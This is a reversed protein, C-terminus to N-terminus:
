SLKQYAQWWRDPIDDTCAAQYDLESCPIIFHRQYKQDINEAKKVEIWWRNTKKSKFFVLKEIQKTIQVEYRVFHEESKAPDENMRQYFGDIFYWIMQALLHSTQGANDTSPNLEFFGICSMTESSGAYRAIQCADEGYFGNPTANANGPADSQRIASIDFSLFDANRLLPECLFIKNKFYGLRYIDFYLNKMLSIASQDTFYTQYGINTYNFLFNPKNLLIRNLWADSKLPSETVGLDFNNDVSAINIIKGMEKFAMYIPYTLEQSGGVIIPVINKNFLESVVSQLAFYTDEPTYGKKINGIDAVKINYHSLFLKYFYARFSNPAEACGFNGISNRDEEVGLIAIDINELNPFNNEDIYQIIIEGLNKNQTENKGESSYSQIPSLFDKNIM